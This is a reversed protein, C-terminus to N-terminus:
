LVETVVGYNNLRVDKQNSASNDQIIISTLGTSEGSIKSFTVNGLNTFSFNTDLPVVFNDSDSSNYSDGYFLVYQNSDFHIGYASNSSRGQTDGTMAKIQQQRLDSILTSTLSDLSVRRQSNTLNITTLSAIIAFIGMTIILELITFGQHDSKFHNAM